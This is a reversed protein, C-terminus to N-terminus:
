NLGIRRLIDQFRRDSRLSDLVPDARMASPLGMLKDAYAKQLFEFAKDNDHLGAYITAM